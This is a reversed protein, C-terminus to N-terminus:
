TKSGKAFDAAARCISLQLVRIRDAAQKFLEERTFQRCYLQGTSEAEMILQNIYGEPDGTELM